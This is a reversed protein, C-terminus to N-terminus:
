DGIDEEGIKLNGVTTSARMLDLGYIGVFARPAAAVGRGGGGNVGSGAAAAAAAALYGEILLREVILSREGLPEDWSYVCTQNPLLTEVM